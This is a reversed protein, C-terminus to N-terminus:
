APLNDGRYNTSPFSQPIQPIIALGSIPPYDRVGATQHNTTAIINRVRLCLEYVAYFRLILRDGGAILKIPPSPSGQPTGCMGSMGCQEVVTPPGPKGTKRIRRPFRLVRYLTM